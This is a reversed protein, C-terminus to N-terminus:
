EEKIRHTAEKVLFELIFTHTGSFLGYGVGEKFLFFM